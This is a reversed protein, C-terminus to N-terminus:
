CSIQQSSCYKARRLPLIKVVVINAGILYLGYLTRYLKDNTSANRYLTETKHYKKTSYREYWDYYVTYTYSSTRCNGLSIIPNNPTLAIQPNPNNQPRLPIKPKPNNQILNNTSILKFNASRCRDLLPRITSIM